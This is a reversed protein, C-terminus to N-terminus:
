VVPAPTTRNTFGSAHVPKSRVNCAWSQSVGVCQVAITVALFVYNHDDM